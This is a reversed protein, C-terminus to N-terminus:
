TRWRKALLEEVAGVVGSRFALVCGLLVLGFVLLWYETFRVIIEKLGLYIVAGLIPGLFSFPGGILTAM